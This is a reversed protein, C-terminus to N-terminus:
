VVMIWGGSTQWKVVFPKTPKQNGDGKQIIKRRNNEHQSEDYPCDYHHRGGDTVNCIPCM